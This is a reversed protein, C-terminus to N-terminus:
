RVAVSPGSVVSMRHRCAATFLAADCACASRSAVLRRGDVVQPQVYDHDEMLEDRSYRLTLLALSGRRRPSSGGTLTATGTRPQFRGGSQWATAISSQTGRQSRTAKPTRTMPGTTQNRAM